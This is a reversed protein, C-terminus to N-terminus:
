LLLLGRERLNELLEDRKRRAVDLTTGDRLVVQGGENRLYRVIYEINVLHSNHIRFFSSTPLQREFDKLTHSILMPSKDSCYVRTYNAVAECRIISSIPVLEIGGSLPLAIKDISPYRQLTNLLMRLQDCIQETPIVASLPTGEPPSLPVVNSYHADSEGRRSRVNKVAAILEDADIPKLLYDIASAKIAQVAYRDYATTFVVEFHRKEIRQLLDFGNGYPMQIDLFVLNPDHENILTIGQEVSDAMGIIEVDSCYESLVANLTERSSQEDDIIAARLKMSDGNISHSYM